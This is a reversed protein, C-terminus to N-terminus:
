FYMCQLIAFGSFSTIVVLESNSISMVAEDGEFGDETM